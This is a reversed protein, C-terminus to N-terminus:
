SSSMASRSSVKELRLAKRHFSLGVLHMKPTGEPLSSPNMMLWRPMSALEFFIDEMVFMCAGVLMLSICFSVPQMAARLRNMKLSPSRLSGKKLSRLRCFLNLHVSSASLANVCSLSKRDFGGTSVAGDGFSSKSRYM